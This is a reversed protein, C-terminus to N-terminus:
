DEIAMSSAVAAWTLHPRSTQLNPLFGTKSTLSIQPCRCPYTGGLELQLLMPLLSRRCGLLAFTRRRFDGDDKMPFAELAWCRYRNWGRGQKFLDNRGGRFSGRLHITKLRNLILSAFYVDQADVAASHAADDGPFGQGIQLVGQLYFGAIGIRPNSIIEVYGGAGADSTDEGGDEEGGLVVVAGNEM